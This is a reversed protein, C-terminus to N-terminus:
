AAEPAPMTAMKDFIPANVVDQFIVAKPTAAVFFQRPIIRETLFHRLVFRTIGGTTADFIVDTVRGINQGSETVAEINIIPGYHKSIEDLEKLKPHLKGAETVFGQRSSNTVDDHWLGAFKKIVGPRTVQMGSVKAETGHFVFRDVTGLKQGNETFVPLGVCHSAEVLM